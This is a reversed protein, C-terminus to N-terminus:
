EETTEGLVRRVAAVLDDIRFPKVLVPVNPPLRSDFGGGTMLVCRATITPDRASVMGLLTAGDEAGLRMDTVLVDYSEPRLEVAEAVSAAGDAHYGAGRLGALLLDRLQDFDEVVLARAPARGTSM